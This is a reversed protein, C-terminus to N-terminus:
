GSRVRCAAGPKDEQTGEGECPNRTSGVPNATAIGQHNHRDSPPAPERQRPTPHARRPQLLVHTARLLLGPLLRPRPPRALTRHRRDHHQGRGLRTRRQRHIRPRGKRHRRFRTLWNLSSYRTGFDDLALKVGMDRLDNLVVLAREDDRFFVSETMELTLLSPDAVAGDLVAAVIETFGASTLQHASVNVSVVVDDGHHSHWAQRDSWARELVWRGIETSLGSQEALPILVTPPVWGRSPHTGRLLAEVGILRGDAAAVIPQYELAM